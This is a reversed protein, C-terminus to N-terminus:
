KRMKYGIGYVTLIYVPEEPNPELKKRLNNIHRDLTREYITGDDNLKDLLQPRTFVRGPEAALASLIRFEAPTLGISEDARRVDHADLDIALDHVRLVHTTGPAAPPATVRRLVARVRAVLERPSFPKTVYDDAGLELGVIRDVEEARATLFITPILGKEAAKRYVDFGSMGPLGVDLIMLAPRSREAAALAGAADGAVEVEFGERELYTRIVDTIQPEDDVVLVREESM